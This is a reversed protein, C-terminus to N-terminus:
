PIQSVRSHYSRFNQYWLDVHSSMDGIACSSLKTFLYGSIIAFVSKDGLERWAHTM